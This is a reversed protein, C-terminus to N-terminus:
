LWILKREFKNSMNKNKNKEFWITHNGISTRSINSHFTRTYLLIWFHRRWKQALVYSVCTIRNWLPLLVNWIAEIPFPLWKKRGVFKGSEIFDLLVQWKANFILGHQENASIRIVNLQFHFTKCFWFSKENENRWMSRLISGRSIKELRQAMVFGFNNERNWGYSCFSMSTFFSCLRSFIRM